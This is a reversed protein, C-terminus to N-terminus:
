VPRRLREGLPEVERSGDYRRLDGPELAKQRHLLLDHMPRYQDQYVVVTVEPHAGGRWHDIEPDVPALSPLADTPM